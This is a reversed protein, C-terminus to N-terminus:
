STSLKNKKELRMEFTYEMEIAVIELEKETLDKRVIPLWEDRTLGNEPNWRRLNMPPPAYFVRREMQTNMQHERELYSISPCQPDNIYRNFAM